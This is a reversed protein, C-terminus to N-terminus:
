DKGREGDEDCLSRGVDRPLTLLIDGPEFGSRVRREGGQRLFRDPGPQAEARAIGIDWELADGLM